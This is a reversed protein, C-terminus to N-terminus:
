SIRRLVDKTDLKSGTIHADRKIFFPERFLASAVAMVDTEGQSLRMNSTINLASTCIILLPTFKGQPPERIITALFIHGIDRKVFGVHGALLKPVNGLCMCMAAQGTITIKRLFAMYPQLMVNAAVLCQQRM